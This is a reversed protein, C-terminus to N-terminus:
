KLLFFLTMLTKGNRTQIQHMLFMKNPLFLMKKIGFSVFDSYFSLVKKSNTCFCIQNLTFCMKYRTSENIEVVKLKRWLMLFDFQSQSYNPYFFVAICLQIIASLQKLCFAKQLFIKLISFHRRIFRVSHNRQAFLLEEENDTDFVIDFSLFQRQLSKIFSLIGVTAKFLM